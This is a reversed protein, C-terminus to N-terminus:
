EEKEIIPEQEFEDFPDGEENRYVLHYRMMLHAEGNFRDSIRSQIFNMFHPTHTRQRISYWLENGDMRAYEHKLKDWKSM